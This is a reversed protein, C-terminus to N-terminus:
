ERMMRAIKTMILQLKPSLYELDILETCCLQYCGGLYTRREEISLREFEYIGGGGNGNEHKTMLLFQVIDCWIRENQLRSLGHEVRYNQVFSMVNQLDINREFILSIINENATLIQMLLVFVSFYDSEYCFFSQKQKPQLIRKQFLTCLNTQEDSLNEDSILCGFEDDDANTNANANKEVREFDLFDDLKLCADLDHLLLGFHHWGREHQGCWDGSLESSDALKVVFSHLSLRVHIMRSAHLACIVRIMESAMYLMWKEHMETRCRRSKELVDHLTQFSDTTKCVALSVDRYLYVREVVAFDTCLQTGQPRRLLSQSIHYNQLQPERARHIVLLRECQEDNCSLDNVFFVLRNSSSSCARVFQTINFFTDDDDQLDIDTEGNLLDDINFPVADHRYDFINNDNLYLACMSTNQVVAVGFPDIVMMKTNKEKKQKHQQQKPSHKDDDSEAISPMALSESQSHSQSVHDVQINQVDDDDDDDDDDIHIKGIDIKTHITATDEYIGFSEEQKKEEVQQQQPQQQQPMVKEAGGCGGGGFIEVIENMAAKSHFTITATPNLMKKAKLHTVTPTDVMRKDTIKIPQNFFATMSSLDQTQESIARHQHQQHQQHKSSMFLSGHHAAAAAAAAPTAFDLKKLPTDIHSGLTLTNTFNSQVTLEAFVDYSAEDATPVTGTGPVALKAMAMSQQHAINGGFKFKKRTPAIAVNEDVVTDGKDGDGDEDSTKRKRNKKSADTAIETRTPTPEEKITSPISLDPHGKNYLIRGVNMTMMMDDDDDGAVGTEAGDDRQMQANWVPKMFRCRAEELSCKEGDYSLLRPDVFSACSFRARDEKTWAGMAPRQHTCILEEEQQPQLPQKRPRFEDDIAVGFARQKGRERQQVSQTGFGQQNWTSPVGDNEKRRHTETAFQRWGRNVPLLSQLGDDDDDNHTTASPQIQGPDMNEDDDCYVGFSPQNHSATTTTTTKTPKIENGFGRPQQYDTRHSSSSETIQGLTAREMGGGSSGSGSGNHHQLRQQQSQTQMANLQDMDQEHIRKKMRELFADHAHTVDEQPQAGIQKATCLIRDVLDWQHHQEAMLSWGRWFLALKAGIKNAHMFQFIQLPDRSLASYELWLKVYKKHNMYRADDKFANTCREILSLLQAKQNTPCSYNLKIWKIYKLWLALPDNSTDREIASEWAKRDREQKETLAKPTQQLNHALSRMRKGASRLLPQINEKSPELQAFSVANAHNSDGDSGHM